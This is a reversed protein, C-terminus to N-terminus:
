VAVIRVPAADVAPLASFWPPLACISHRRNLNLRTEPLEPLTFGSLSSFALGAFVMAAKM